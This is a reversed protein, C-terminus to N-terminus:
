SVLLLMRRLAARRSRATDHSQVSALEGGCSVTFPSIVNDGVKFQKIGEGVESVTGAFEHGM